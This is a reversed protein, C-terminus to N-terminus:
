WPLNRERAWAKIYGNLAERGHGLLLYHISTESVTWLLWGESETWEYLWIEFGPKSALARLMINQGLSVKETPGKFEIILFEKHREIILDVNSGQIKPDLFESYDVHAALPQRLSERKEGLSTM